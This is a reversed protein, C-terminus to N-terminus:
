RIIYFCVGAFSLRMIFRPKGSFTATGNALSQPPPAFIPPVVVPETPSSTIDKNAPSDLKFLDRNEPTIKRTLKGSSSQFVYTFNGM